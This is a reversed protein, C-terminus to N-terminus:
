IGSKKTRGLDRLVREVPMKFRRDSSDKVIVPLKYNRAKLGIITFYKGQSYFTKNLDEPVFGYVGGVRLFENAEADLHPNAGTGMNRIELRTWVAENNYRFSGLSVVVDNDVNFQKILDRLKGKLREVEYKDM